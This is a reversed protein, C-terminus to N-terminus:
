ARTDEAKRLYTHDCYADGTALQHSRQFRWKDRNEKAVEWDAQCVFPTAGSLGLTKLTDCIPCYTVKMEVGDGTDKVVSFDFFPRWLWLGKKMKTSFSGFDAASEMKPVWNRAFPRSAWTFLPGCLEIAKKRGVFLALAYTMAIGPALIATAAIRRFLKKM